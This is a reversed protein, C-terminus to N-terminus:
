DVRNYIRARERTITLIHPDVNTNISYAVEWSRKVFVDNGDIRCSYEGFEVGTFTLKDSTIVFTTTNGEVAGTWTGIIDSGGGQRTFSAPESSMYVNLTTGSLQAVRIEKSLYAIKDGSVTYSYEVKDVEGDWVDSDIVTGDSKFEYEYYHNSNIPRRWVGILGSGSGQRTYSDTDIRALTLKAGSVSYTGYLQPPNGSNYYIRKTASDYTYTSTHDGSILQETSELVGSDKFTYTTTEGAHTVRWVGIVSDSASTETAPFSVTFSLTNEATDGGGITGASPTGAGGTTPNITGAFKHGATAKLVITATYVQGGAFTGSVTPSWNLSQATYTSAGPSLSGVTIPAAGTAPAVLGSISVSSIAETAVATAPFSVTFSLTNGTVDGGGITGASPTGAGGTDPTITGTFKYNEGAKLV